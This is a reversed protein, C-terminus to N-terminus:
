DGWLLCLESMLRLILKSSALPSFLLESILNEPILLNADEKVIVKPCLCYSVLDFCKSSWDCLKMKLWHLLGGGWVWGKLSSGRSLLIL